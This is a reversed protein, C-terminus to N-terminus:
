NKSIFFNAFIKGFFNALNASSGSPGWFFILFFFFKGFNGFNELSVLLMTPFFDSTLVWPPPLAM